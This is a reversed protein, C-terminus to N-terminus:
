NMCIPISCSQLTTTQKRDDTVKSRARWQYGCRSECDRDTWRLKHQYRGNVTPTVTIIVDIRNADLWVGAITEDQPDLNCPDGKGGSANPDYIVYVEDLSPDCSNETQWLFEWDTTYDPMPIQGFNMTSVVIVPTHDDYFEQVSNFQASSVVREQTYGDPWVVSIKADASQQGLGFTLESSKQSGLGSGGDVIQTQQWTPTGTDPIQVTVQAGIGLANNGYGYSARAYPDMPDPGLRVKLWQNEPASDKHRGLFLDFDGDEEDSGTGGSGGFDAVSIATIVDGTMASLGTSVSVDTFLTGPTAFDNRWLRPSNLEGSGVLDTILLDQAGDLDQDFVTMSAVEADGPGVAFLTPPTDVSGSTNWFVRIDASETSAQGVVLDLDSDNDLDIWHVSDVRETGRIPPPVGEDDIDDFHLGGALSSEYLRSAGDAHGYDGVFLDLNSDGNYDAWSASVTVADGGSNIGLVSADSFLGDGDNHLLVDSLAGQPEGSTPHTGARGIFLDM